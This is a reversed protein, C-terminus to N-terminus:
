KDAQREMQQDHGAPIHFDEVVKGDISALTPAWGENVFAEIQRRNGYEHDILYSVLEHQTAFPPTVPTGETVTEYVQYWTPEQDYEPRLTDDDPEPPPGWFDEYNPYRAYLEPKSLQREHEGKKWQQSGENWENITQAYTRNQMPVYDGDEALPHEWNPPVRRIERGM